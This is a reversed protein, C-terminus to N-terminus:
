PLNTVLAETVVHLRHALGLTWFSPLISVGTIAVAHWARRTKRPMAPYGTVLQRVRNELLGPEHFASWAPSRFPSPGGSLRAVKVLASALALAREDDSGVAHADALCEAQALWREELRRGAATLGLLDPACFMLVRKLNDRSDRHAIEHSVAVDFEAPTLAARADTGVLIQPRFVGALAVGAFGPVELAGAGSGAALRVFTRFRLGTRCVSAVRWLSRTLMALSLLALGGLVIGFSEPRDEEFWLHSPLFGVGVFVVAAVSPLLRVALLSDASWSHHRDMTVREIVWSTVALAVNVVAFWALGLLASSFLLRV